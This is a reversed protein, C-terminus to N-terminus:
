ASAADPAAQPTPTRRRWFAAGALGLCAVALLVVIPAPRFGGPLVATALALLGVLAPSVGIALSARLGRSSMSRAPGAAAEILLYGPAFFLVTFALSMRLFSGGPLALFALCALAVLGVCAALDLNAVFPRSSPSSQPASSNGAGTPRGGDQM